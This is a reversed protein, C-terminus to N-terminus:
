IKEQDQLVSDALIFEDPIVRTRTLNRVFYSSEKPTRTRQPDNFDVHYLGFKSNYGYSWEFNDILSWITYGIVSSKDLHIARLIEVLYVALYNIREVDHLQGSDAFGNETIFIDWHDGYQERIWNLLKRMGTPTVSLWVSTNSKPWNKAGYISIGMDRFISPNGEDPRSGVLWTTYHNIALYDATGRIYEVEEPTFSPLRSVPFGEERSLREIREKMIEPYDGQQSFIPHAYSGIMIQVATEAAERDARSSSNLASTWQAALNLSIKGRQTARFHKDYLHYVRAHAKIMNHAALYMGVGSTNLRPATIIFDEDQYREYGLSYTYPENLTSWWRVRDGFNEFLIRAYAEFYTVTIENAFGGLDQLFRPMDWHFMTVMPQIENSILEDIVNNYYDIGKQNINNPLGDPMIRSWSISFRYFDLGLAKAAQIDERYKYYSQCADDGNAGGSILEPNHHTFDDWMSAGKGDVDWAGEIQYASTAAGFLFGEPFEHISQNAGFARGATLIAALAIIKM